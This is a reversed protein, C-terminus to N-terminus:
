KQSDEYKQNLHEIAEKAFDGNYPHGFWECAGGVGTERIANEFVDNLCKPNVKPLANPLLDSENM